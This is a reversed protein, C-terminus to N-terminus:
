GGLRNAFKASRWPDESAETLHIHLHIGLVHDPNCALVKEL